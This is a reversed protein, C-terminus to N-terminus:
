LMAGEAEYFSVKRGSKERGKKTRSRYKARERETGSEFVCM